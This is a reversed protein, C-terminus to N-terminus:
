QKDVQYDIGRTALFFLANPDVDAIAAGHSCSVDNATIELTPMIQVRGQDGLMISRCQQNAESKQGESPIRIHGKFVARGAEGLLINHKQDSYTEPATHIISSHM